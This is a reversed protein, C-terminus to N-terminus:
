EKKCCKNMTTMVQDIDSLASVTESRESDVEKENLVTDRNGKVARKRERSKKKKSRDAPRPRM